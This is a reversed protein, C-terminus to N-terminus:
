CVNGYNQLWVGNPVTLSFSIKVTAEEDKIPYAEKVEHLSILTCISIHQTENRKWPIKLSQVAALDTKECM